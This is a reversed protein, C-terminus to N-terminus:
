TQMRYLNGLCYIGNSSVRFGSICEDDSSGKGIAASIIYNLEKKDPDYYSDIETAYLKEYLYPMEGQAEDYFISHNWYYPLVYNDIQYTRTSLAYISGPGTQLYDETFPHLQVESEAPLDPVDGSVVIDVLLRGRRDLGRAVHTMHLVEGTVFNVQTEKRFFGKTLTYGNVANGIEHATTWYIPTLLPVLFKMWNAIAPTINQIDASVTQEMGYQTINAFLKSLGFDVGNIVGILHGVAESPMVDCAEDGCEEFEETDGPCEKGGYFPDPSNCTRSRSRVGIGCTVSCTSWSSWESWKGD